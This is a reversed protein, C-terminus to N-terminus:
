GRVAMAYPHMVVGGPNKIKGPAPPLKGSAVNTAKGLLGGMDAMGAAPLNMGMAPLNQMMPQQYMPMQSGLMMQPNQQSYAFFNQLFPNTFM